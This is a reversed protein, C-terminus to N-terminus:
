TYLYVNMTWIESSKSMTNRLHRRCGQGNGYNKNETLPLL